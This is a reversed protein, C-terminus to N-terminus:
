SPVFMGPLGQPGSIHGFSCSVVSSSRVQSYNHGSYQISGCRSIWRPNLSSRSIIQTARVLRSKRNRRSSPGHSLMSWPGCSCGRLVVNSKREGSFILPRRLQAGGGASQACIPGPLHHYSVLSRLLVFQFPGHRMYISKFFQSGSSLLRFM